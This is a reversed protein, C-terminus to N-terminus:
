VKNWRAYLTANKTLEVNGGAIVEKGGSKKTYWGTFAYGKRVPDPPMTYTEGYTETFRM